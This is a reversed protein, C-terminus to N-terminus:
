HRPVSRQSHDRARPLAHGTEALDTETSCYIKSPAHLSSPHYIKCAASVFSSRGYDDRSLYVLEAPIELSILSNYGLENLLRAKPALLKRHLSLVGCVDLSCDSSRRGSLNHYLSISHSTCSRFFYEFRAM